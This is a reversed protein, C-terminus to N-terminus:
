KMPVTENCSPVAYGGASSGVKINVYNDELNTHNTNTSFIGPIHQKRWKRGDKVGEKNM